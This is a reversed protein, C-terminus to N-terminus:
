KRIGPTIELHVDKDKKKKSKFKDLLRLRFYKKRLTTIAIEKESKSLVRATGEMVPGQVEGRAACPAYQVKPNNIIRVVKYRSAQTEVYLKGDKESFLVPTDVGEGNKRYTTLNIYKKELLSNLENKKINESL